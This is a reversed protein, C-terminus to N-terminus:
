HEYTLNWYGESTYRRDDFSDWQACMDGPQRPAVCASREIDSPSSVYDVAGYHVAIAWWCHQISM